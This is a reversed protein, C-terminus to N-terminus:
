EEHFSKFTSCQPSIDVSITLTSQDYISVIKWHIQRWLRNWSSKHLSSEFLSESQMTKLWVEFCDCKRKIRLLGTWLTATCNLGFNGPCFSLILVLLSESKSVPAATLCVPKWPDEEPKRPYFKGPTKRPDIQGSAKQWCLCMIEKKFFIFTCM